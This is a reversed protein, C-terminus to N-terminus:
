FLNFDTSSVLNKLRCNSKKSFLSEAASGSSLNSFFCTYVFCQNETIKRCFTIEITRYYLSLDRFLGPKFIRKLSKLFSPIVPQYKLRHSYPHKITYFLVWAEDPQKMEASEFSM